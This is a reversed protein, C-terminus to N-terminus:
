QGLSDAFYLPTSTGLLVGGIGGQKGEADTYLVLPKKHRRLSVPLKRETEQEM